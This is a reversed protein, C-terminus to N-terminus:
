SAGGGGRFIVADEELFCSMKVSEATLLFFEMAKDQVADSSSSNATTEANTDSARMWQATKNVPTSTDWSSSPNSTTEANTNSPRNSLTASTGSVIM